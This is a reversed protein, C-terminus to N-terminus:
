PLLAVRALLAILEAQRSTQTKAFLSALQSKVTSLKVGKETAVAAPTAGAAMRLALDAEAESLGFMQQLAVITPQPYAELDILIIVTSASPDHEEGAPMARVILPRRVDRPVVIWWEKDLSFRRVGLRIIDKLKTRLVEKHEVSPEPACLGPGLLDDCATRNAGVVAGAADLILGGLRMRDLAHLLPRGLLVM